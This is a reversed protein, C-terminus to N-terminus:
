KDRVELISTMLKQSSEEVEDPEEVNKETICRLVLKSKFPAGSLSSIEGPQPNGHTHQFNELIKQFEQGGHRELQKIFKNKLLWNPSSTFVLADLGLSYFPGSM